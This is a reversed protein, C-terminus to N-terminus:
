GARVLAFNTVEFEILCPTYGSVAQHNSFVPITQLMVAGSCWSGIKELERDHM